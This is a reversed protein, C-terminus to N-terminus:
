HEHVGKWHVGLFRQDRSGPRSPAFLRRMKFADTPPM